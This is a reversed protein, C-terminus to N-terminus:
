RSQTEETHTWADPLRQLAHTMLEITHTFDEPSLLSAPSHLYRCPVSVVASPIGEQALHIAGADTGGLGPQKFQYPIDHEEATTVLLNVLRRDAFLRRDMLTIAPGKGIETTSSVDKDKPLDDAITAELVFAVDPNIDFAAVRAGRLGLEEQVTFAAHLEFPYDDAHLTALLTALVACGARDDFAKNKVLNGTQSFQADFTVYDGPSVHKQADSSSAAGIDIVLDKIDLVKRAERREMLHVPKVGIIGPIDDDGIRVTKSLVIRSDIGGITRFKLTGDSQVHLVMFGVEDMHAAVMVRRPEGAGSQEPAPRKVALLNGLNDVRVEDVHDQIAQRIIRRVATENGAVGRANSLKELLKLPEM